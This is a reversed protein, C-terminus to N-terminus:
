SPMCLVLEVTERADVPCRPFMGVAALLVAGTQPLLFRGDVQVVATVTVM